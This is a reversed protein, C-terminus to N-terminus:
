NVLHINRPFLPSQWGEHRSRFFYNAHHAILTGKSSRGVKIDDASVLEIANTQKSKLFIDHAFKKSIAHNLDLDLVDFVRFQTYNVEPHFKPGESVSRIPRFRLAPVKLKVNAEKLEEALERLLCDM